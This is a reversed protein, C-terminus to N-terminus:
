IASRLNLLSLFHNWSRLNFSFDNTLGDDGSSDNRLWNDFLLYDLSWDNSLSFDLSRDVSFLFNSISNDISLIKGSVDRNSNRSSLNESLSINLRYSLYLLFNYINLSLSRLWNFMILNNVGSLVWFLYNSFIVLSGSLFKIILGNKLSFDDIIFLVDLENRLIIM